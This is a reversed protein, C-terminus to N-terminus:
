KTGRVQKIEYRKMPYHGYGLWEIKIPHNTINGDMEIRTVLGILGYVKDNQKLKRGASSLEVLEGVQM